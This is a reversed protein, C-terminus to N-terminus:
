LRVGMMAWWARWFESQWRAAAAPDTLFRPVQEIVREARVATAEFAGPGLHEHEAKPVMRRLFEGLNDTEVVPYLSLFEVSKAFDAAASDLPYVFVRGVWADAYELEWPMWRSAKSNSSVAYFLTGSQRMRHRLKEAIRSDAGSRELDDDDIWDVYVSYGETKIRHRVDGVANRDAFAHSLFIDYRKNLPAIDLGEVRM